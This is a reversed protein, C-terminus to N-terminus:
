YSFCHLTAAPWHAGTADGRRFAERGRCFPTVCGQVVFDRLMDLGIRGKPLPYTAADVERVEIV